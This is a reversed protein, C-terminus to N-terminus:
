WLYRKLIEASLGMATSTLGNQSLIYKKNFGEITMAGAKGVYDKKAIYERLDDDSFKDFKYTTIALNVFNMKKSVFIMATVVSSFNDSQAKLMEYAENDDKAKGFIQNNAVVASDAFLVRDYDKYIKFFQEKKANAVKYAYAYVDNAVIGSEDFKVSIQEFKIDFDRLIKARTVSSSALYIM